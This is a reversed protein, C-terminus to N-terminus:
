KLYGANRLNKDMRKVIDERPSEFKKGTTLEYLKTYSKNLEFEMVEDLNPSKRFIDKDLSFDPNGKFWFRSSDPTHIEDILIVNGYDDLGFEYKTDALVVDKEKMFKRGYEFLDLSAKTIRLLDNYHLIGDDVAEMKSIPKDHKGKEEKTFLDVIPTPLPSNKELGDPLIEGGFEREGNQYRTWISTDTSGSLYGRVVIELPIRDLKRVVSINPDIVKLLHNPIIKRTKDFWFESLQNLIQGKDYVTGFVKDFASIRDTSIIVLEDNGIDYVDRVKGEYKEGIPFDTREIKM